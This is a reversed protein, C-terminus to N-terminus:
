MDCKFVTITFSYDCNEGRHNEKDLSRIHAFWQGEALDEETFSIIITGNNGSGAKKAEGSDPCEGTGISFEFEWSTDTWELRAVVKKNDAEMDWHHKQDTDLFQIGVFPIQITGSNGENCDMNIGGAGMHECATNNGNGKGSTEGESDDSVIVKYGVATSVMLIVTILIGIMMLRARKMKDRDKGM